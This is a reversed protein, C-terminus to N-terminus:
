NKIFFIQSKILLTNQNKSVNTEDATATCFVVTDRKEHIAWAMQGVATENTTVLILTM